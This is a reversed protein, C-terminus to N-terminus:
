PVDEVLRHIQEETDHPPGFGMWRVRIVLVGQAGDVRHGKLAKVLNDPFDCKAAEFKQAVDADTYRRGERNRRV